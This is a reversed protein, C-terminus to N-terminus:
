GSGQEDSHNYNLPLSCVWQRLKQLIKVEVLAQAHFRKKNRIVKVAVLRGTKYDICRLVQGFSGKGLLDIVEYRYAFHDGGVVQYDGREDDYGFNLNNTAHLRGGKKSLGKQGTFYVNDEYDIIEGKEYLNLAAEDMLPTEQLSLAKRRIAKRRLVALSEEEECLYRAGRRKILLFRMEEDAISQISGPSNSTTIESSSIAKTSEDGINRELAQVEPLVFSDAAHQAHGLFGATGITTSDIQYAAPLQPMPEAQREPPSVSPFPSKKGKMWSLGLRKMTSPSKPSRMDVKNVNTLLMPSVPSIEVSKMSRKANTAAVKSLSGGRSLSMKQFFSPTRETEKACSYMAGPAAAGRSPYRYAAQAAQLECLPLNTNPPTLSESTYSVGVTISHRDVRTSGELGVTAGFSLRDKDMAHVRRVTPTSLAHVNLPPLTLPQLQKQNLSPHRAIKRELNPKTPSVFSIHGENRSADNTTFIRSCVANGVTVSRQRPGVSLLNAPVSKSARKFGSSNTSRVVELQEVQKPLPPVPPIPSPRARAKTIAKIPSPIGTSSKRLTSNAEALGLHSRAATLHTAEPGIHPTNRMLRQVETPSVTRAGLGTIRKPSTHLSTVSKTSITRGYACVNSNGIQLSSDAPISINVMSRSKAMSLPVMTGAASLMKTAMLKETQGLRNATARKGSHSPISDHNLSSPVEKLPLQRTRHTNRLSLYETGPLIDSASRSSKRGNGYSHFATKENDRSRETVDEKTIVRGKGVGKYCSSRSGALRDYVTQQAQLSLEPM